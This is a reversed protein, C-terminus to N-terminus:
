DLTIPYFIDITEEDGNDVTRFAVRFYFENLVLDDNVIYGDDYVAVYDSYPLYKIEMNAFEYVNIWIEYDVNFISSEWNQNNFEIIESLNVNEVYTLFQDLSIEKELKVSSVFSEEKFECEVVSDTKKCKNVSYGYLDDSYDNYSYFEFYDLEMDGNEVIVRASILDYTIYLEEYEGEIVMLNAVERLDSLGSKLESEISFGKEDNCASLVLLFACLSVASILKKM